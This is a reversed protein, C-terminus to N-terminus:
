LEFKEFKKKLIELDPNELNIVFEIIFQNSIENSFKEM